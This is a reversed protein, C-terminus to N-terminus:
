RGQKEPSYSPEAVSPWIADRGAWLGLSPGSSTPNGGDDMGDEGVSYLIFSGEGALHYRLPVASMPDVPLAPLFDPVLADLNAPLTGHRLQYRKLAIASVTLCRQTEARVVNEAAREFNPLAMLSLWYRFRAFSNAAQGIQTFVQDLGRKAEIWPQHLQLRRVSDLSQQITHLYFLEDADISTMRYIPVAIYDFAANELCQRATPRPNTPRGMIAELKQVGDPQRLMVWLQSTRAREGVLGREIADQLDLSEWARQLRALQPESWGDAQLAEWTASEGLTAVAVRIMQAVLTAESRNMRALDASAELDAL